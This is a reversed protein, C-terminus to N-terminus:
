RALTWLTEVITEWHVTRTIAAQAALSLVLLLLRVTRAFM